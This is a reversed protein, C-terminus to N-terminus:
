IVKVGSYLKQRDIWMLFYGNHVCRLVPLAVILWPKGGSKEKEEALLQKLSDIESQLENQLYFLTEKVNISWYWVFLAVPATKKLLKFVM